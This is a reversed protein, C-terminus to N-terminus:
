RRPNKTGNNILDNIILVTKECMSNVSFEKDARKRNREGIARRREPDNLLSFLKDALDVPDGPRVFPQNPDEGLAEKNGSLDTAVVPLGAAMYEIVSNSLGEHHSTLVGIDCAALLGTVDKVAGLFYVSGSLGLQDALAKTSEYTEQTAGALWLRPTPKNPIRKNIIRRWACLLTQHDKQSRFNAVM